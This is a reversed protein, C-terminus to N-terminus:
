AVAGATVLEADAEDQSIEGSAVLAALERRHASTAHARAAERRQQTAVQQETLARIRVVLAGIPSTATRLTGAAAVQRALDTATLGAALAAEVAPRLRPSGELATVDGLGDVTRRLEDIARNVDIGHTPAAGRLPPAGVARESRKRCSDKCWKAQRGTLPGGCGICTRMPMTRAAIALRAVVDRPARRVGMRYRRLTRAPVGAAAALDRHRTTRLEDLLGDTSVADCTGMEDAGDGRAVLQIMAAHAVVPVPRRLGRRPGETSPDHERLWAEWHDAITRVVYATGRPAGGMSRLEGDPTMALLGVREGDVRWDLHTWSTPDDHHGLAVPSPGDGGTEAKLYRAFPQVREDGLAHRLTVLDDWSGARCKMAALQTARSRLSEPVTLPVSPDRELVMAVLEAEDDVAWALHGDDTLANARTPDALQGLGTDTSRVIVLSERTGRSLVVKNSRGSWTTGHRSAAIASCHTSRRLSRV